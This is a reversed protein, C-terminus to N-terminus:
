KNEGMTKINSQWKEIANDGLNQIDLVLAGIERMLLDSDRAPEATLARAAAGNGGGFPSLGAIYVVNGNGGKTNILMSFAKKKSAYYVRYIAYGLLTLVVVSTLFPSNYFISSLATKIAAAIALSIVLGTIFLPLNFTTGRYIKIESVDGIAVESQIASTGGISKGTALFLLRKNTVELFGDAKIGFLKSDFHTCLYSKVSVEGECATINTKLIM